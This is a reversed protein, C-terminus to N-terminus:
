ESASEPGTGPSAEACADEDLPACAQECSRDTVCGWVPGDATESCFCGGAECMPFCVRPSAAPCATGVGTFADCIDIPAQADAPGAETSAAHDGGCGACALALTWVIGMAALAGKARSPARWACPTGDMGNRRHLNALTVM